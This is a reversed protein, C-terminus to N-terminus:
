MKEEARAGTAKATAMEDLYIRVDSRSDQQQASDNNEAEVTNNTVQNERCAKQFLRLIDLNTRLAM